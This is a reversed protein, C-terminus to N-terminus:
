IKRYKINLNRKYEGNAYNSCEKEILYGDHYNFCLIAGAFMIKIEGTIEGQESKVQVFECSSIRNKEEDFCSVGYTGIIINSENIILKKDIIINSDDINSNEYLEWEGILNSYVEQYRSEQFQEDKKTNNTNVNVEISCGTIFILTLFTIVILFIRKM